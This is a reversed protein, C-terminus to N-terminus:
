RGALTPIWKAAEGGLPFVTFPFAELETEWGDQWLVLTQTVQMPDQHYVTRTYAIRGNPGWDPVMERGADLKSLRTFGQGDAGILYLFWNGFPGNAQSDVLRCFVARANDPSLEPDCDLGMPYPGHNPQGAPNAGGATLQRLNSGDADMVWVGSPRSWPQPQEPLRNFVIRRGDWSWAPDFDLYADDDSTLQQLDTGDAAVTFLRHRVWSQSASFVIRSGDPSWDANNFGILGPLKESWDTMGGDAAGDSLDLLYLRTEDSESVAGDGDTDD